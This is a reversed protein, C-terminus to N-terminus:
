EKVNDTTLDHEKMLDTEVMRNIHIAVTRKGENRMVDYPDTHGDNGVPTLVFNLGCLKSLDALVRKGELSGFTMKYDMVLQTRREEDTM